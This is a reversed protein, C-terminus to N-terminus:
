SGSEFQERTVTVVNSVRVREGVEVLNTLYFYFIDTDYEEFVVNCTHYTSVYEIEDGYILASTSLYNNGDIDSAMDGIQYPFEKHFPILPRDDLTFELTFKSYTSTPALFYFPIHAYTVTEPDFPKVPVANRLNTDIIKVYSSLTRYGNRKDQEPDLQLATNEILYFDDKGVERFLFLTANQNTYLLIDPINEPKVLFIRDLELIKDKTQEFEVKHEYDIVRDNVLGFSVVVHNEKEDEYELYPVSEVSYLSIVVGNEEYATLFPQKETIKAINEVSISAQNEYKENGSWKYLTTAVLNNPIIMIYSFILLISCWAISVKRYINTNVWSHGSKRFFYQIFWQAMCIPALSIVLRCYFEYLDYQLTPVQPALMLLLWWIYLPFLPFQLLLFTFISPILNLERNQDPTKEM